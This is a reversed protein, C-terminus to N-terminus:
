TVSELRAERCHGASMDLRPSLQAPPIDPEGPGYQLLLRQDCTVYLGGGTDQRYAPISELIRHTPLALMPHAILGAAPFSRDIVALERTGNGLDRHRLATGHTTTLEGLRTLMTTAADQWLRTATTSRTALDGTTVQTAGDQVTAYLGAGLPILVPCTPDYPDHRDTGTGRDDFVVRLSLSPRSFPTM